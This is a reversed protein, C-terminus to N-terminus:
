RVVFNVLRGPVYIEKVITKGDLWKAVNPEAKALSLVVDKQEGKPITIKGRLKGQVQIALNIASDELAKPDWEPWTTYSLGETYGLRSWLEEAIHPAYPSLIKLFAELDEREPTEGKCANVFEMMKSIPTNFRLAELGQTTERIAVHLARKVSPSSKGFPKLAGTNEDVMLRWVRSLFRSIGECGQTQWPKVQDLPGMFMVYTRLTDAGYDAVIDLPDTVNLKSKSMKEVQSVVELDSDRVFWSGDRQEVEDVHRYKGRVDRYSEALLMGQNFLKKFPEKTHVLGCDYLVKHWFRAYLLHLVAHEVGGIYLDVPGWYREKEASFPANENMPDM